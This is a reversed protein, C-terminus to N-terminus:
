CYLYVKIVLLFFLSFTWFRVPWVHQYGTQDPQWLFNVAKFVYASLPSDEVTQNMGVVDRRLGREASVVMFALLFNFCVITVSRLGSWTGGFRAM